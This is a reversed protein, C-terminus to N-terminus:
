SCDLLYIQMLRAENKKNWLVPARTLDRMIVNRKTVPFYKCTTKWKENEWVWQISLRNDEMGPIRLVGTAGLM